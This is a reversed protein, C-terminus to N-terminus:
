RREPRGLDEELVTVRVGGTLDSILNFLIAFVVSLAAGAAVLVVGIISAGRFITEGDVEFTEFVGVDEIFSELQDVIGSEVAASWLLVGSAMGAVYMCAFLIISVKFVSWPDVHRITRRVRRVRMRRRRWWALPTSEKTPAATVGVLPPQAARAPTTVPAEQVMPGPQSITPVPGTPEGVRNQTLDGITSTESGVAAPGLTASQAGAAAAARSATEATVLPRGSTDIRQKRRLSWKSGVAGAPPTLGIAAAFTADERAKPEEGAVTHTAATASDTNVTSEPM